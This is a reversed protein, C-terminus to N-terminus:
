SRELDRKRDNFLCSSEDEDLCSSRINRLLLVESQRHLLLLSPLINFLLGLVLLHIRKHIIEKVVSMVVKDKTDVLEQYVMWTRNSAYHITVM